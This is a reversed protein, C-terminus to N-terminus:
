LFDPLIIKAKLLSLGANIISTVTDTLNKYLHFRDANNEIRKIRLENPYYKQLEVTDM